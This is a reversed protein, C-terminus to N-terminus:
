KGSSGFGKDGRTTDSLETLETVEVHPIEMVIGQAIRDGRKILVDSDTNNYLKVKIEGRYSVDVVGANSAEVGSNFALGSRSNVLLFPKFGVTWYMPEWAVGTGFIAYSHAHIMAGYHAYLDLGANSEDGNGYSPIISDDYLKKFGVKM